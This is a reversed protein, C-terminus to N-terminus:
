GRKRRFKALAARYAARSAYDERVPHGAARMRTKLLEARDDLDAKRLLAADVRAQQEPTYGTVSAGVTRRM